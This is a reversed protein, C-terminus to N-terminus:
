ITFSEETSPSTPDTRAHTGTVPTQANVDTATAHPVVHENVAGDPDTQANYSNETIGLNQDSSMDLVRRINATFKRYSGIAANFTKRFCVLIFM